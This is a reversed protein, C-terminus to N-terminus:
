RAGGRELWWALRRRTRLVRWTREGVARRDGSGIYRRNRFYDNAVADAPKRPAGEVATLLDIAAAIRAAPTM